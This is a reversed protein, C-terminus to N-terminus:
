PRGGSPVVGPPGLVRRLGLFVLPIAAMVGSALAILAPRGGNAVQFSLTSVTWALITTYGALLWAYRAGMERIAAGLASICPFYILVFLLYSYAGASSFNARMRRFVVSDGKGGLIERSGLPDGISFLLGALNAPITRAAELLRQPLDFPREDNAAANQSYLSSLTGVVAEKAFMGAFLGVTAPWNSPEIGAPGLLPTVAKGTVALLSRDTGENGLSGDIGVSNLSSLIAVAV